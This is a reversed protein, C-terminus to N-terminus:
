NVIKLYPLSTVSPDMIVFRLLISADVDDGQNGDKDVDANAAAQESLIMVKALSKNLTICDRLDVVGDLNVDGYAVNETGTTTVNTTVTTTTGGGTTTTTGTM